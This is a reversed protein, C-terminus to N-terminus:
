QVTVVYLATALSNFSRSLDGLLDQIKNGVTDSHRIDCVEAAIALSPPNIAKLM